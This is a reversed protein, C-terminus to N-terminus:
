QDVRKRQQTSVPQQNYTPFNVYVTDKDFAIQKNARRQLRNIKYSQVSDYIKSTGIWLLILILLVVIAAIRLDLMYYFFGELLDKCEYEICSPINWFAGGLASFIPWVGLTVRADTCTKSFTSAVHENGAKTCLAIQNEATTYEDSRINWLKWVGTAYNGCLRLIVGM